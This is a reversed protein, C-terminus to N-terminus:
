IFLEYSTRDQKEDEQKGDIKWSKPKEADLTFIM